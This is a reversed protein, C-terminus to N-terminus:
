TCGATTSPTRMPSTGADIMPRSRTTASSSGEASTTRASHSRTARPVTGRLSPVSPRRAPRFATGAGVLIQRTVLFPLLHQVLRLVRHQARDHLEHLRLRQGRLGRQEQVPARVPWARPTSGSRLQARLEDVIREGAADQAVVDYRPRGRRDRVRPPAWTWTSGGAPQAPVRQLGEGVRTRARVPAPRRRQREPAPGEASHTLGFEPRSASIRRDM